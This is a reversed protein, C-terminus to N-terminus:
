RGPEALDDVSLIGHVLGSVLVQVAVVRRGPRLVDLAHVREDAHMRRGAPFREPDIPGHRVSDHAQVAPFAIRNQVIQVVHVLVVDVNLDPELPRGARACQPIVPSVAGDDSAYKLYSVRSQRPIGSSSDRYVIRAPVVAASVRPM